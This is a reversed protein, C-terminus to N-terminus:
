ENRVGGKLLFKAIKLSGRILPNFIVIMFNIFQQYGLTINRSRNNRLVAVVKGEFMHEYVLEISKSNDGRVYLTYRDNHRIKKILRHCILHNDKSYLIIDGINLKNLYSKKVILKDNTRLFPWMSFGTTEFFSLNHNNNASSKFNTDNM